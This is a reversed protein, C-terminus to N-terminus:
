QERHLIPSEILPYFIQGKFTYIWYTIVCGNENQPLTGKSPIILFLISCLYDISLDFSALVPLIPMMFVAETTTGIICFPDM